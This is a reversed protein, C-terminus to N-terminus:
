LNFYEVYLSRKYRICTLSYNLNKILKLTNDFLFVGSILLIKLIKIITLNCTIAGQIKCQLWHAAWTETLYQLFYNSVLVIKMTLIYVYVKEKFVYPIFHIMKLLIKSLILIRNKEDLSFLEEFFNFTCFSWNKKKVQQWDDSNPENWM